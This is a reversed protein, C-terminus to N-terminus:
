LQCYQSISGSPLRMSSMCIIGSDGCAATSARQYCCTCRFSHAAHCGMAKLGRVVVDGDARMFRYQVNGVPIGDDRRGDVRAPVIGATFLHRFAAVRLRAREVDLGGHWAVHERHFQCAHAQVAIPCYTIVVNNRAAHTGLPGYFHFIRALAYPPVQVQRAADRRHFLGRLMQLIIRHRQPGHQPTHRRRRRRCRSSRPCSIGAAIAPVHVEIFHDLARRDIQRHPSRSRHQIQPVAMRRLAIPLQVSVRQLRRHVHLERNVHKRTFAHRPGADFRRCM